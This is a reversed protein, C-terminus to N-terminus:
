NNPTPTQIAKITDWGDHIRGVVTRYKRGLETCWDKLIQSKGNITILRKYPDPKVAEEFSLNSRYLRNYLTCYKIKLVEAWEKLTKQENNYEFRKNFEGRNNAQTKWTTWRCNQACYNGSNDIRDISSHAGIPGMDVMFNSFKNWTADVKINNQQYSLHSLSPASCRARM